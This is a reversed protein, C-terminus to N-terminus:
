QSSSCNRCLLPQIVATSRMTGPQQAMDPHICSFGYPCPSVPKSLPTHHTHPDTDPRICYSNYLWSWPPRFRVSLFPAAAVVPIWFLLTTTLPGVYKPTISPALFDSLVSYCCCSCYRGGKIKKQSGCVCRIVSGKVSRFVCFEVYILIYDCVVCGAIIGHCAGLLPQLPPQAPPPYRWSQPAQSLRSSRCKPLVALSQYTPLFCNASLRFFLVFPLSPLQLLSLARKDQGHKLSIDRPQPSQQSEPSTGLGKRWDL